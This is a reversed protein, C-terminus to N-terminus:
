SYLMEPGDFMGVDNSIIMETDGASLEEMAAMVVRNESMRAPLM